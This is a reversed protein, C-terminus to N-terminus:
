KREAILICSKQSYGFRFNIPKAKKTEFAKTLEPEYFEEFLKIPKTYSGYLSLDWKEPAFFKYAIGSDDQVILASHELCTNRIISFYSKHMLYTASKVLTICPNDINKLFAMFAKDKSLSPDALNTSLYLITKEVENDKDTYYIKVGIYDKVKEPDVVVLNGNENLNIYEVKNIRKESRVLFLMLVPTTGDINSNALEEKMDLTRFFSLQMVDEIAKKYLNLVDALNKEDLNQLKPVSGPKELGILIINKVKPFLTNAFLFDPGSFPYFLTEITDYKHPIEKQAFASYKSAEKYFKEWANKSEAKYKQWDAFKTLRKQEWSTDTELGAIYNAINNLTVSEASHKKANNIGSGNANNCSIIALLAMPIMIAIVVKNLKM